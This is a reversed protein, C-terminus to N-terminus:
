RRHRNKEKTTEKRKNREGVWEKERQRRVGKERERGREGKKKIGPHVPCLPDFAEQSM